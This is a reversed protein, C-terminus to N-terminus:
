SVAFDKFLQRVQPSAKLRKLAKKEIQRIRERTVGIIEGVEELTRPRGDDLGFRLSLIRRARRDLFGLAERIAEKLIKLDVTKQIDGTSQNTDEIVDLLTREPGPKNGDGVPTFLSITGDRHLAAEQFSRAKALPIGMREAMEELSPQRELEQSLEKRARFFYRIERHIHVPVRITTDLDEIARWVAQKIWWSAYTSFKGERQWEFREVAKILGFVGIQCLDHLELTAIPHQTTIKTVWFAVLRLNYEIIRNRIALASPIKNIKVGPLLEKEQELKQFMEREQEATLVPIGRINEWLGAIEAPPQFGEIEKENLEELKEPAPEVLQSLVVSM